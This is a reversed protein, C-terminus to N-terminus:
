SDFILGALDGCRLLGPWAEYRADRCLIGEARLRNTYHPVGDERQAPTTHQQWRNAFVHVVGSRPSPRHRLDRVAKILQRVPRTLCLRRGSILQAFPSGNAM